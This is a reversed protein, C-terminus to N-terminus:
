LWCGLLRVAQISFLFAVVALFYERERWMWISIIGLATSCLYSVVPIMM